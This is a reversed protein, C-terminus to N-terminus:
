QAAECASFEVKDFRHVNDCGSLTDELEEITTGLGQPYQQSVVIPIDLRRAMEILIRANSGAKRLVEASMAKSLKEQFDVIFLIARERDLALEVTSVNHHEPLAKDPTDSISM